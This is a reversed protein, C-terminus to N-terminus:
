CTELGIYKYETSQIDTSNCRLLNKGDPPLLNGENRRMADIDFTVKDLMSIVEDAPSRRDSYVLIADFTVLVTTIMKGSANCKIMFKNNLFEM